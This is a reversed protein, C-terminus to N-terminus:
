QPAFVLLVNGPSGNGLGVYGGPVFMLGGAITPGPAGMSGGRAPVSNVTKFDQQTDFTWITQGTEASLARLMGDRGGAFVVGPIATLAATIGARDGRAPLTVAWKRQGTAIDLAAVLDNSLGFYAVREDAAGGFLIEAEGVKDVLLVKWALAGQKDPDHAWVEGSKQGALLLRAGNPLTSLIPSTGFDYDPGLEKPCNETPQQACGVLWADNETDQVSWLVKGTDMHLAMVADTTAPAPLTYADGTAIYVARNGPDITPAHWVAAGAPAWLQTGRSNRRVPKPEEDIIYTKWIQRGTNSDLAVISGRFTCCPYFLSGGAAEERSSVPVYLRGEHLTPAGTIVALPHDDVKVKWILDGSVADVAYINSLIDGFFVAHRPTPATVPGVSPSNRVGTEALFSWHVCGTAADLSYVYGTDVGVFVRGAAVTPQGYVSSAGPFGFAWKLKLRPVDAASLGATRQFRANTVDPGWGNWSPSAALDTIPPNTPCHNPMLRADGSATTGIKRGTYWEVMSRIVPDSLGEVHVRMSGTTVARYVTEPPLKRLTATDPAGEVDPTRQASPNKHCASCREEIQRIVRSATQSAAPSALTLVLTLTASSITVVRRM